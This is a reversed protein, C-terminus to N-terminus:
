TARKWRIGAPTDEIVLGRRQIEARIRDAEAWDRRERARRRDEVLAAVDPPLPEEGRAPLGFV